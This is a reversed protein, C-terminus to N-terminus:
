MVANGLPVPMKRFFLGETDPPMVLEPVMDTWLPMMRVVTACNPVTLAPPPITLLPVMTADPAPM